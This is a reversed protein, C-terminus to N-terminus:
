PLGVFLSISLSKLIMVFYLFCPWNRAKQAANVSETLKMTEFSTTISDIHDGATASTFAAPTFM